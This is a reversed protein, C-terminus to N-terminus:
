EFGNKFIIDSILPDSFPVGAAPYEVGDNMGDGDTDQLSPNTGLIIEQGDILGDNDSDQNLYVFGLWTSSPPPAVNTAVLKHNMADSEDRYLKVSGQPICQPLPSCTPLIYGEIGDYNYGNNHFSEIEANSVAYTDNRNGNDTKDMRRLPVLNKTGTFPNNNTTFVYFSARPASLSLENSYWFSSFENVLPKSTDSTYSNVSNILLFTVALQPFPTYVNNTAGSSVVEFMPTLRTKMQVGNAKGLIKELALRASPVGYGFFDSQGSGDMSRQATANLINRLGLMQNPDYTGNPLLPNTSRMLQLIAATQPASMSTGTCLGYGDAFDDGAFDSCAHPLLPNHEKGQYFTSYVDRAQQVVDTKYGVTPYSYNSGCESGLTLQRIGIDDPYQPCGTNVNPDIVTFDSVDIPSENWFRGLEDIGASAVVRIDNAPFNLLKRDNGASAVMLVQNDEMM